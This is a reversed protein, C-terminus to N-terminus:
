APQTWGCHPCFTIGPEVPERCAVCKPGEYNPVEFGYVDAQEYNDYFIKENDTTQAAQEIAQEIQKMFVGFSILEGPRPYWELRADYNEIEAMTLDPNGRITRGLAVDYIEAESIERYTSRNAALAIL